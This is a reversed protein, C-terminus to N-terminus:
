GRIPILFEEPIDTLFRSVIGSTRTGFFLREQTYTFYLQKKARTMGVYCLRREEELEGNDLLSRSHPFL